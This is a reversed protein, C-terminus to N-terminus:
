GFTKRMQECYYQVNEWKADPPIRHDPCPIYGGLEVLPKLREVEEDIAKYDYAFVKKDMGGVGRLERGYKERWPSISAHWTGVEIPFMTNVGNNFWTPILSDILGDCDLSVINIGHKNLLTTIKKYHPGVLEDFVAPIVLPGNKFCIDEWFHAFDFKVGTELIRELLKYQLMATTDILEKYFEEDDSYLFSVGEVGMWDRIQGFLSGCFLGTPTDGNQETKSLKEFNIRDESYILRHAYHELFSEKDKLLHAVEAPISGAEDKELVIVGHENQVKRFGDASEEILKREFGPFLGRNASFVTTWCFDFGLKAAIVKDIENGDNQGMAEASTIHGEESWKQLTERWYGFHVLPLRDYPQYNLLAMTRERNNM